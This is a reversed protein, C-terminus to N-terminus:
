VMAIAEVEVLWENSVLSKIAVLTSAPFDKKLYESRVEAFAKYDEINRLFVTTKIINEISGGYEEVIAKLNEFVQKTQIKIDGKGVLNGDSDVSVQGSIFLLSDGKVQVAQSSSSIPEYVNKLRVIRKEM